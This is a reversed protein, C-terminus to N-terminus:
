ETYGQEYALFGVIGVALQVLMGGLGVILYGWNRMQDMLKYYETKGTIKYSDYYVSESRYFLGEMLGSQMLYLMELGLMIHAEMPNLMAYTSMSKVFWWDGVANEAAASFDTKAAPAEEEAAAEEGEGEGEGAEDTVEEAGEGDDVPETVPEPEAVPEPEPAACSPDDPFIDCLSSM